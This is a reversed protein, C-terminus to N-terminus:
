RNNSKPFLVRDPEKLLAAVGKQLLATRIATARKPPVLYILTAEVWTNANTRFTVFPYERIQIDDIATQSILEKLREIDETMKDGLVEKAVGKLTETVFAFDSEYAIHFPLENWIYPFKRWSYNYLGSSLVLSNPFRILRGTPLDSTLYDGGAEWLTTDLYGIEVVDGRFSDIQIRDGVRFPNRLIIYLWGIFSSIPTQLAFGLILSILGLSVVASYWNEFLVTVFVGVIVLIALLRILRILNYREVKHQKHRIITGEVWKAFFLILFGIAAALSMKILWLRLDGLLGFFRLKMLFFCATSGISLLLWTSLVLKHAVGQPKTKLRAGEAEQNKIDM